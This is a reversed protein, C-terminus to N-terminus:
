QKLHVKVRGIERGEKREDGEGERGGKRKRYVLADPAALADSM